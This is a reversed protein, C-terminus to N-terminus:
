APNHGAAERLFIREKTDANIIEITTGLQRAPCTNAIIELWEHMTEAPKTIPKM